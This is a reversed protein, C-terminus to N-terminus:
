PQLAKWGRKKIYDISQSAVGFYKSISNATFGSELAELVIKRYVIPIKKTVRGGRKFDSRPISNIENNLNWKKGNAIRSVVGREISFMKAIDKQRYLGTSYLKKIELAQSQTIKARGSKEGM